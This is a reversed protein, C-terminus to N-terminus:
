TEFELLWRDTDEGARSLTVRGLLQHGTLEVVFSLESKALLHYTGCDWQRVSGRNSSIPGEYDLYLKRHDPLKKAVIPLGPAPLRELAWTRLVDNWELLFDWHVDQKTRHELIAFRGSCVNSPSAPCM